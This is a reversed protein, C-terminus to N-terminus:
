DSDSDSTFMCGSTVTPEFLKIHHAKLILGIKKNMFYVGSIIFNCKAEWGSFLGDVITKNMLKGNSDFLRTDPTIKIRLNGSDSLNSNFMESIEQEDLFTKFIEKSDNSIQKIIENEFDRMVQIDDMDSLSLVINKSPEGGYDKVTFGYPLRNLSSLTVKLKAGNRLIDKNKTRTSVLEIM